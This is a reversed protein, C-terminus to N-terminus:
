LLMRFVSHISGRLSLILASFMQIIHLTGFESFVQAGVCCPYGQLFLINCLLLRLVGFLRDTVLVTVCLSLPNTIYVLCSYYPFPTQLVTCDPFETLLLSQRSMFICVTFVFSSLRFLTCLIGLCIFCHLSTSFSQQCHLLIFLSAGASLQSYNVESCLLIVFTGVYSNSRVSKSVLSKFLQM